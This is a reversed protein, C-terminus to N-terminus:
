ADASDAPKPRSIVTGILTFISILLMLLNAAFQIALTVIKFGCIALVLLALFIIM